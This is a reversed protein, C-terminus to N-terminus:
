LLIEEWKNKLAESENEWNFAAANKFRNSRLARIQEKDKLLREFSHILSEKQLSSCIGHGPHQQMFLLQAETDSALIYLGAQFYSWIKNTLCISRNFDIDADEIALGLDYKNLQLNLEKQSLPKICHIYKRKIIENKFFDKRMEGILTLEIDTNIVDLCPLIKELGRTYDIYQSFWVLRLKEKFSHDTETARFEHAAFVNNIVIGNSVSDRVVLEAFYKKILPSAFSNYYALPMLMKMLFTVSETVSKDAVECPHYDEIDLAFPIKNNTALWYSPYFAAPNHAIILDPKVTSSRCWSLLLWSRKSVALACLFLNSPFFLVLIRATKEFISSLLWSFFDKHSSELYQFNIGPLEKNLEKERETSWNHLNFAVVTVSIKMDVM